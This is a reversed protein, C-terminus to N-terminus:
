EANVVLNRLKGIGEVETEMVDGAKLFEPPNRTFGVGSPTGTAIIDGPELTMGQSLIAIITRIPFVMMSTNGEQKTIGNVRLRVELQQPDEIEDATVIWPGM